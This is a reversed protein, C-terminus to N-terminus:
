NSLNEGAVEVEVWSFELSRILEIAGESHEICHLAPDQNGSSTVRSRRRAEGWGSNSLLVAPGEAVTGPPLGSRLVPAIYSIGM